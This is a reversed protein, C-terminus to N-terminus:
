EHKNSSVSATMAGITENSEDSIPMSIQIVYLRTSRDYEVDGVHVRGNGNNFCEQWKPEDAQWFDSTKDSEAVICGKNDMVFLELFSPNKQQAKRLFDACPNELYRKILPDNVGKTQRWRLDTQGIQEPTQWGSKNAKKVARVLLPHAAIRRLDDVHAQVIRDRFALEEASARTAPGMALAPENPGPSETVVPSVLANSWPLSDVSRGGSPSCGTAM